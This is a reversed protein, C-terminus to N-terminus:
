PLTHHILLIENRQEKRGVGWEASEKGERWNEIGARCGVSIESGLMLVKIRVLVGELSGCLVDVRLFLFVLFLFVLIDAVLCM